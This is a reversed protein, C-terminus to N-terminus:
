LINYEKKLNNLLQEMEFFFNSSKELPQGIRLNKM